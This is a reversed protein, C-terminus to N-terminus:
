QWCGEFDYMSDDFSKKGKPRQGSTHKMTYEDLIKGTQELQDQLEALTTFWEETNPTPVHYEDYEGSSIFDYNAYVDNTNSSVQQQQSGEKKWTSSKTVPKPSSSAFSMYRSAIDSDNAQSGEKKQEMQEKSMKRLGFGDSSSSSSSEHLSSSPSNKRRQPLHFSDVTALSAAFSLTILFQTKM